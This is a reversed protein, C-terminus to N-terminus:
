FRFVSWLYKLFFDLGYPFQLDLSVATLLSCNVVFCEKKVDSKIKTKLRNVFFARFDVKKWYTESIINRWPNSEREWGVLKSAFFSVWRKLGFKLENFVWIVKGELLSDFVSLLQYKNQFLLLSYQIVM